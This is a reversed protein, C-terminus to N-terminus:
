SSKELLQLDVDDMGCNCKPTEDVPRSQYWKGDYKERYGNETPEGAERRLRICHTDHQMYVVMSNIMPQLSKRGEMFGKAYQYRPERLLNDLRPKGESDDVFAIIQKAEEADM